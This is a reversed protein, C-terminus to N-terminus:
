AERICLETLRIGGKNNSSVRRHPVEGIPARYTSPIVESGSRSFDVFRLLIEFDTATVYRPELYARPPLSNRTQMGQETPRTSSHLLGRSRIRRLYHLESANSRAPSISDLGSRNWDISSRRTSPDNLEHQEAVVVVIGFMIKRHRINRTPFACM